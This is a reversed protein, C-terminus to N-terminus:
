PTSHGTVNMACGAKSSLLKWVMMTDSLTVSTRLKTLEGEPCDSFKTFLYESVVISLVSDGLFELRENYAIPEGDTIRSNMEHAYSSHTLATQLYEVHVFTYKITHQLQESPLPYLEM